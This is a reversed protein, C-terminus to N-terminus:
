LDKLSFDRPKSPSKRLKSPSDSTHSGSRSRSNSRHNLKEITNKLDVQRKSPSNGLLQEVSKEKQFIRPVSKMGVINSNGSAEKKLIATDDFMQLGSDMNYQKSIDLSTDLGKIEPSKSVKM